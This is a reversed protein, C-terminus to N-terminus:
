AGLARDLIAVLAGMLSCLGSNSITFSRGVTTMPRSSSTISRVDKLPVRASAM